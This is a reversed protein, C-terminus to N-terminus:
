INNIKTWWMLGAKRLRTAFSHKIQIETVPHESRISAISNLEKSLNSPAFM